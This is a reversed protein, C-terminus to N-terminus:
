KAFTKAKEAAETATKVGRSIMAVTFIKAM